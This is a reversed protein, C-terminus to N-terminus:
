LQEKLHALLELKRKIHKSKVALCIGGEINREHVASGVRIPTDPHTEKVKVMKYEHKLLERCFSEVWEQRKSLLLNVIATVADEKNEETFESRTEHQLTEPYFRFIQEIEERLESHPNSEM